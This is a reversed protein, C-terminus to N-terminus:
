ARLTSRKRPGARAARHAAVGGGLYDQQYPHIPFGRLARLLEQLYRRRVPERLKYLQAIQGAVVANEETSAHATPPPGILMAAPSCDGAFGSFYRAMKEIRDQVYPNKGAEVRSVMAQSMGIERAVDNQSKGAAKRWDKIYHRDRKHPPANRTRSMESFKRYSHM